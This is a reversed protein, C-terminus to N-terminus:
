GGTVPPFFAVEDGDRVPTGPDAVVHNVAVRIARGPGLETSWLDSRGRLRERLSGVDSVEVPLELAETSVGLSDRLRALFVLKVAM